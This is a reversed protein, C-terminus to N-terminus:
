DRFNKYIRQCGFYPSQISWQSPWVACPFGGTFRKVPMFAAIADKERFYVRCNAAYVIRVSVDALNPVSCSDAGFWSM